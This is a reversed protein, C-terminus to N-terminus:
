PKWQLQAAESSSVISASGDAFAVAISSGDKPLLEPGGSQNWGLRSTEFFVVTRGPISGAMIDKRTYSRGALSANLAFSTNTPSVPWLKGNHNLTDCWAAAPPIKSQSMATFIMMKAQTQAAPLGASAQKIEAILGPQRARKIAVAAGGALLLVIATSTVTKGKTWAMIHLTQKLLISLPAAAASGKLAAATILTAIAPPAAQVSHASLLAALTTTTSVVGRKLFVQRLMELARAVRKQGAREEVGLAASTAALSCNKFYRLVIADRDSPRLSGMAEDLIPRLEEWAPQPDPNQEVAFRM